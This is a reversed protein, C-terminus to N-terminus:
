WTLWAWCLVPPTVVNAMGLLASPPERNHGFLATLLLLRAEISQPLNWNLSARYSYMMFDGGTNRKDNAKKILDLSRSQMNAMTAEITQNSTFCQYAEEALAKRYPALPSATPAYCAPPRQSPVM